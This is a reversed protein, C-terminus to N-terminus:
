KLGELYTALAAIDKSALSHFQPMSTGPKLDPADYIWRELNEPTNTLVGAGITPRTGFDTLEPGVKGNATTGRITHCGACAERQFVVAGRTAEESQPASSTAQRRALWRGFDGPTEVVVIIDMHAHQLGCFEACRGLFTGPENATFRLHNTQGPITDEKGALEPVWFSHIVNDSTLRLDIEQGAPIHIVNATVVNTDVYRVNWWWLKGTVDIRLADPSPARLASTSNVTVGAVVLLIVLPIVLGGIWIFTNERLRSSRGRRRGRLAAFIILGGVVLYVACALGFIIWWTTAINSAESGKPNTISGARGCGATVAALAVAIALTRARQTV